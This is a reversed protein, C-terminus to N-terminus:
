PEPNLMMISEHNSCLMNNMIKHEGDFMKKPTMKSVKNSGLSFVTYLPVFLIFVTDLPWVNLPKSCSLPFVVSIYLWYHDTGHHRSPLPLLHLIAAGVQLSAWPSQLLFCSWTLKVVSGSAHVYIHMLDFEAHSAGYTTVVTLQTAYSRYIQLIAFCMKYSSFPFCIVCDVDFINTSAMELCSCNLFGSLHCCPSCQINGCKLM